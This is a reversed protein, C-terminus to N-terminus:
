LSIGEFFVKITDLYYFFTLFILIFINSYVEDQLNLGSSGLRQLENELSHIIIIM